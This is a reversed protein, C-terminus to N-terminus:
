LPKQLYGSQLELVTMLEITVSTSPISSTEMRSNNALAYSMGSWEYPVRSENMIGHSVHEWLGQAWGKRCFVELLLLIEILSSFNLGLWQGQFQRSLM